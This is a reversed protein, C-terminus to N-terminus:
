YLDSAQIRYVSLFFSFKLKDYKCIQFSVKRFNKSKAMVQGKWDM